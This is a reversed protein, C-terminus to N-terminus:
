KVLLWADRFRNAQVEKLTSLAEPKSDTANVAVRYLGTRSRDFVFATMGESTLEGILKRANEELSFAGVIVAYRGTQSQDPSSEPQDATVKEAAPTEAKAPTESVSTESPLISAQTIDLVPKQVSTIKRETLSSSSFRSFIVNLFHDGASFRKAPDSFLLMWALAAAGVPIAMMAVWRLTTRMPKRIRPSVRNAHMRPRSQRLVHSRNVPPSIFTTLGYSDPLLNATKHQEFQINAEAGAYLRGIQPFFLSEGAELSHQCETAFTEIAKCAESYTVDQYSAIRSALLGDNHALNVNFLIKKSPPSFTHHVPDIRAPIYNGIFGGFGPIIVCDHESLLEAIIRRIDM